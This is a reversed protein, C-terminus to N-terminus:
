DHAKKRAGDAVWKIVYFLGWWVGVPIWIILRMEDSEQNRGYVFKVLSWLSAYEAKSHCFSKGSFEVDSAKPLSAMCEQYQTDGKHNLEICVVILMMGLWAVAVVVFIRRLVEMTEGM